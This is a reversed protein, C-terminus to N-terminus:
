YIKENTTSRLPTSSPTQIKVTPVTTTVGGTVAFINMLAVGFLVLSLIIMTLYVWTVRPRISDVSRLQTRIFYMVTLWIGLGILWLLFLILQM